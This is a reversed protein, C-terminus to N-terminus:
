HWRKMVTHCLRMVDYEDGNEKRGWIYKERGGFGLGLMRERDRRLKRERVEEGLVGAGHNQLLNSKM